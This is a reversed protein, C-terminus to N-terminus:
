PIPNTRSRLAFTRTVNRQLLGDDTTVAFGTTNADSSFNMTINVAVVNRWDAPIAVYPVDVMNDNNADVGFQLNTIAVNSVLPQSAGGANNTHFTQCSLENTNSIFFRTTVMDNEAINNGLCDTMQAVDTASGRSNSPSKMRVCFGNLDNTNTVFQNKAFALCNGAAPAAPFADADTEAPDGKYGAMNIIDQMFFLAFRTNSNVYSIAEQSRYTQKTSLYIQTGGAVLILGIVMAILLEILTLGYQRPRRLSTNNLTRDIM